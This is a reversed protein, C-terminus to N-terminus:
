GRRLVMVRGIGNFDKKIEVVEFGCRGFIDAVAKAQAYGIELVLYGEDALHSLAERAIRRYFDLGDDGGDIAIRPEMLVEKQLGAFEHRAVYPPNGAIIDFRGEINCFLDSKVFDIRGSVGNSAANARATMLAEESIDSAVIKCDPLRVTLSIAICGSGTCLDLVRLRYGTVQLRNYLDIATEVLVETEPRPILVGEDVAFDLGCFVSRGIIYQLPTFPKVTKV